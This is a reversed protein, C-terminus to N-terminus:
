ELSAFTFLVTFQKCWIVVSQYKELEAISKAVGYSQGGKNGKILVLKLYDGLGDKKVDRSSSLYVWLDPGQTFSVDEGFLILSSEAREDELKNPLVYVTGSGRHIPDVKMLQGSRGGVATFEDPHQKIWVLVRQEEPSLFVRKGLLIDKLNRERFLM